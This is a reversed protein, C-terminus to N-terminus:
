LELEKSKVNYVLVFVVELDESVLKEVVCFFLFVEGNYEVVGVNFVGIVEFGEYILKVDLFIILLNEEYCYINM